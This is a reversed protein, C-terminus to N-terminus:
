QAGSLEQVPLVITLVCGDATASRTWGLTCEDLFVTGLGHFASDAEGRGDDHITLTVLVGDESAVDVSVHRAEGHRVANSVAETILDIAVAVAMPDNVFVLSADESLEFSVECVGEWTGKIREVAVSWSDDSTTEPDLVDIADLLIKRTDEVTHADAEGSQVARDLKLAAATVAAQVPGHLARAIQQRQLWDTQRLRVLQRRLRETSEALARENSRQQRLVTTVLAILFLVGSVFLGGSVIFVFRNQSEPLFYSAAATSTYGVTLSAVVVAILVVRAQFFKHVLEVVRNAAAAGILVGVALVVALPLGRALGFVGLATNILVLGIFAASALPRFPPRDIIQDIVQNLTVNASTIGTDVDVREPLSTALEHSMPRVVDSALRQLQIVSDSGQTSDLSLLENRLRNQVQDLAEQNRSEVDDMLRGETMQLNHQVDILQTLSRKLDRTTSVVVAVIILFVTQSVLSGTIRYAYLPDSVAEVAHLLASILFGRIVGYAIFGGVAVWPRPRPPRRLVTWRLVLLPFFSIVQTATVIGVRTILPANVAGGVALTGVLSSAFTVWFAPWTVADPGGICDFAQRWRSM